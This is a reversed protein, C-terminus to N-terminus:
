PLRCRHVYPSADARSPAERGGFLLEAVGHEGEPLAELPEADFFECAQAGGRYCADVAEALLELELSVLLELDGEGPVRGAVVRGLHVDVEGEGCPFAGRLNHGLQPRHVLRGQAIGCLEDLGASEVAGCLHEVIGRADVDIRLRM